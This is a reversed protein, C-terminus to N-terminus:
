ISVRPTVTTTYSFTHSGLSDKYTGAINISVFKPFPGTPSLSFSSIKINAPTLASYGTTPPTCSAGPTVAQELAFTASNYRLTRCPTGTIQLVTSSPINITAGSQIALSITNLILRVSDSSTELSYQKSRTSVVDWLSQVSLISISGIIAAAILLEILTFGKPKTHQLM